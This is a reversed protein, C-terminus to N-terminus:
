VHVSRMIKDAKEPISDSKEPHKIKKPNLVEGGAHDDRAHGHGDARGTRDHSVPAQKFKRDKTRVIFKQVLARFRQSTEETVAHARHSARNMNGRNRRDTEGDDQDAV